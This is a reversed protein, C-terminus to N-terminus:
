DLVFGVLTILLAVASLLPIPTNPAVIFSALTLTGSVSLASAKVVLWRPTEAEGALAVLQGKERIERRRQMRELAQDVVKEDEGLEEYFDVIDRKPMPGRAILLHHIRSPLPNPLGRITPNKISSAM